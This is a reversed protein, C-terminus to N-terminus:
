SNKKLNNLVKLFFNAVKSHPAKTIKSSHAIDEKWQEKLAMLTHPKNVIIDIELDLNLSRYNYNSTGIIARDDCIIVKSHLVKDEREFIEIGSRLLLNYYSRSFWKVFFVDTIKTTVISVKVGRKKANLLAKLFLYPPIFYPNIIHIHEKAQNLFNLRFKKVRRKNRWLLTHCVLSNHPPQKFKNRKYGSAYKWVWEFGQLIQLVNEGSVRVMTERWDVYKSSINLSGVWGVHDDIVVIKRHNRRNMNYILHLAKKFQFSLLHRKFKNLFWLVPRYVKVYIGEKELSKIVEQNFAPSGLGDVILLVKVGRKAAKKLHALLKNGIDDMSFIFMEMVITHQAQHIDKILNNFINEFDEFCEETDWGKIVQNPINPSKNKTFFGSM